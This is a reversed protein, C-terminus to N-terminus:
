EKVALQELNAGKYFVLPHLLKFKIKCFNPPEIFNCGPTFQILYLNNLLFPKNDKILAM